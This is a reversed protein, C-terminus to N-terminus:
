ESQEELIKDLLKEQGIRYLAFDYKVPDNSDFSKLKKTLQQAAKLDYTSRNILRLKLSIDFTHTDLPILLDKKDIKNWLGMDLNDKRVMWRLFMNLRKYPSTPRYPPIKGILFKYGRSKYRNIKYIQSILEKIGDIILHEKKYGRFFINEISDHNKLRKMTIFFQAVDEPNQFRYYHSALKKKIMAESAELLSFDLSELFKVILNAKGYAFMACIFSVYEDQYRKAIILPDPREECLELDNNRNQFENELIKKINM